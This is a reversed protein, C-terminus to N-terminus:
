CCNKSMVMSSPSPTTLKKIFILFDFTLEDIKSVINKLSLMTMALTKFWNNAINHALESM